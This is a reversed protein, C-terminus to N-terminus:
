ATQKKEKRKSILDKVVEKRSLPELTVDEEVMTQCLLCPKGNIRGMCRMCIGLACGAHDYYSLTDDLNQYIYDLIDMASTGSIIPVNYSKYYPKSDVSPDFRFVTATIEKEKM